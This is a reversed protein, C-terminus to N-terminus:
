QQYSDRVPTIHATHSLPPIIHLITRMFDRKVVGKKNTVRHKSVIIQKQKKNKQLSM